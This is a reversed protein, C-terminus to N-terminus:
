TSGGECAPEGPRANCENLPIPYRINYQHEPDDLPLTDVRGFRRIDIWRHGWEFILSYRREYLLADIFAEDSAPAALATLGGSITRVVNLAELAATEEGTFWLAEARILLLEEVRIIPVDAGPGEYITFKLDSTLGGAGGPTDTMEVKRALRADGAEADAVVSPHAYINPNILNNVQDGAGTSYSHYVGVLLDPLTLTAYMDPSPIFSEDLAALAAAYDEVYIAVRARLARNFQRFTAPTDFGTFGSSLAFPFEDGGNALEEAGEDLLAAIEAYVEDKGLIPGLEDIGGGTDVVAGNEDRTTIVELLDYAKITRAYGRVAAKQEDSYEAVQDVADIIINAMQINAYPLTWFNGGFPSGPNLDGGLLEGIFRPDAQDFNYADRGLISLQAVYGNAQAHNRRAGILLGTAAAAVESPTPDELIDGIGPNNLDPVDLDCAPVALSTAVVLAFTRLTRM